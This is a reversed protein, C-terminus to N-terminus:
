TGPNISTPIPSAPLLSLLPLRTLKPRPLHPRHDQPDISCPLHVLNPYVTEYSDSIRFGFGGFRWAWFVLCGLGLDSVIDM